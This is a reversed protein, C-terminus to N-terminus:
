MGTTKDVLERKVNDDTLLRKVKYNISIGMGMLAWFIPAVTITSDNTLGTVMYSVTGIFIAVGVKSYFNNFHGKIYLRLSTIFYIGYFILLAILSLVGTQVAIQLYLNHPKTIIQGAYGARIKNFYDNQPFVFTFTDPGSGIILYKKLLPITRSWIYGRNSALSEHGTFVASPATILKDLKGFENICYYAGDSTLNTFSYQSGDAQVFFVGPSALDFGLVLGTFRDDGITYTNSNIDFNLAINNNSEDLVQLSLTQNSNIACIIKANNERYRVFIGDDLTQIDSLTYETTTKTFTSKLKNIFVNNLSSNIVILGLIFISLIAISLIPRKFLKRWFFILMLIVATGIGIFGALSQSGFECILMGIVTIISVVRWIISKEVFIIICLIPIIMAVFVGVYNPNFLTMYVRHSGFNATMGADNQYEVPVTLKYGIESTFFDHGSFQLLGLFSLIVAVCIIVRLIFQVDYETNIFLFTYYAIICYSLIAFISEFQDLSGVYSFYSFKSTLTSLVALVAYVALPIFVQIKKIQKRFKLTKYVCMLLMVTATIVLMRQKYYLFFDDYSNQNSFWAFQEMKPDYVKLMVILPIIILVVFIPMLTYNINKEESKNKRKGNLGSKSKISITNSSAKINLARKNVTHNSM